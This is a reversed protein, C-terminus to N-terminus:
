FDFKKAPELRALSAVWNCAFGDLVTALSRRNLKKIIVGLLLWASGVL